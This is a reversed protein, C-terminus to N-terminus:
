QVYMGDMGISNALVNTCKQQATGGQATSEDVMSDRNAACEM